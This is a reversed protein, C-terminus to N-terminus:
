VTEEREASSKSTAERGERNERSNPMDWETLDKESKDSAEWESKFMSVKKYLSGKGEHKPNFTYALPQVVGCSSVTKKNKQNKKNKNKEEETFLVIDSNVTHDFIRCCVPPARSSCNYQGEWRPLCTGFCVFLCVLTAWCTFTHAGFSVNYFSLIFDVPQGKVETCMAM